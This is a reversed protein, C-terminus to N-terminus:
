LWVYVPVKKKLGLQNEFIDRDVNLHLFFRLCQWNCALAVSPSIVWGHRFTPWDFACLCYCPLCDSIFFSLSLYLHVAKMSCSFFRFKGQGCMFASIYIEFIEVRLPIKWFSNETIWVAVCLFNLKSFYEYVHPCLKPDAHHWFIAASLRLITM